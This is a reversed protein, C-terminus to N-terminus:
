LEADSGYGNQKVVPYTIKTFEYEYVSSVPNESKLLYPTQTYKM